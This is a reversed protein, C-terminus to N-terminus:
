LVALSMVVGKRIGVMRETESRARGRASAADLEMGGTSLCALCRSRARDTGECDDSDRRVNCGLASETGRPPKSTTPSEPTDACIINKPVASVTYMRSLSDVNWCGDCDEKPRKEYSNGGECGLM